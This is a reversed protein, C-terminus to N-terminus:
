DASRGLQQLMVKAQRGGTTNLLRNPIKFLVVDMKSPFAMTIKPLLLVKIQRRESTNLLRRTIKFLVMDMKSPFAMTIKPLLLVKIPQM